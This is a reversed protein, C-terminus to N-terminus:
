KNTLKNFMKKTLKNPIRLTPNSNKKKLNWRKFIKQNM